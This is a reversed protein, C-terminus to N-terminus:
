AKVIVFRPPVLQRLPDPLLRRRSDFGSSVAKRRAFHPEVFLAELEGTQQNLFGFGVITRDHEAVIFERLRIVDAFDNPIPTSAWVEAETEAYHGKCLGRISATRVQWVADQDAATAKRCSISTTM